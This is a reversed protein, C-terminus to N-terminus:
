MTKLKDKMLLLGQILKIQNKFYKIEDVGSSKAKKDLLIKIIENNTDSTYEDWRTGRLIKM